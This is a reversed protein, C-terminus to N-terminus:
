VAFECDPLDAMPASTARPEREAACAFVVGRDSFAPPWKERAREISRSSCGCSIVGQRSTVTPLGDRGRTFQSPVVAQWTGLYVVRDPRAEFAPLQPPRRWFRDPRDRADVRLISWTGAPIERLMLGRGHFVLTEGAENELRMVTGSGLDM